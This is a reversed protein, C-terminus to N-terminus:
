CDSLLKVEKIRTTKAQYNSKKVLNVLEVNMENAEVGGELDSQVNLLKKSPGKWRCMAVPRM